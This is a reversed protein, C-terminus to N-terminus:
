DDVLTGKTATWTGSGQGKINSWSGKATAGNPYAPPTGSETGTITGTITTVTPPPGDGNSSTLSISTGTLTGYLPNATPSPNQESANDLETGIIISGYQAFSLTGTGSQTVGKMKGTFNLAWNGSIGAFTGTSSIAGWKGSQTTGDSHLSTYTGSMTGDKNVTGSITSSSGDAGTFQLAVTGTATVTGTIPTLGGKDSINGTLVTGTQTLNITGTGVDTLDNSITNLNWTGTLGAPPTGTVFTFPIAPLTVTLVVPQPQAQYTMITSSNDFNPVPVLNGTPVSVNSLLINITATGATPTFNDDVTKGSVAVKMNYVGSLNVTSTTMGTFSVAPESHNATGSITGCSVAASTTATPQTGLMLGSMNLFVNSLASPNGAIAPTASASGTFQIKGNFTMSNDNSNNSSVTFALMGQKLTFNETEMVSNNTGHLSNATVTMTSVVGVGAAGGGAMSVAPIALMMISVLLLLLRKM